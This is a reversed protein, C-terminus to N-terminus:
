VSDGELFRNLRDTDAISDSIWVGSVYAGLYSTFSPTRGVHMTTQADGTATAAAASAVLVGDLFLRCATGDSTIRISHWDALDDGFASGSLDILDAGGSSRLRFRVDDTLQGTTIILGAGSTSANAIVTMVNSNAGLTFKLRIALDFVGSQHLSNFSDPAGFDWWQTEAPVFEAAQLTADWFPPDASEDKLSRSGSPKILLDAGDVLDSFSDVGYIADPTSQWAHIADDAFKNGVWLGSEYLYLENNTRDVALDGESATGPLDGVTAVEVLADDIPYVVGGDVFYNVAEATVFAVDGDGIESADVASQMESVTEYTPIGEGEGEGAGVSGYIPSYSM